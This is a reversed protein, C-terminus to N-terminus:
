SIGWELGSIQKCKSQSWVIVKHIPMIKIESEFSGFFNPEYKCSLAEFFWLLWFWAM